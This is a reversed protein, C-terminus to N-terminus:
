RDRPNSTGFSWPNGEPDRVRFERSGYDTDTVEADARTARAHLMDPDAVAIYLSITSARPNPPSGGLRGDQKYSGLM